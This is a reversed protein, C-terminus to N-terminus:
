RRAPTHHALLRPGTGKLDDFFTHGSMIRYITAALAYVDTKPHVIGDAQEPAIYGLTGSITDSQEKNLTLRSVGFDIVVAGLVSTRKPDRHHEPSFLTNQPFNLRLFLNGPKLDCHVLGFSQLASLGSCVDQIIPKVESLSLPRARAYTELDCGILYELVLYPQDRDWGSDVFNAVNPHYIQKLIDAEMQLAAKISSLESASTASKPVFLKLVFRRGNREHEVLWVEGQTGRGLRRILKYPGVQRVPPSSSSRHVSLMSKISTGVLPGLMPGLDEAWAREIESLREDDIRPSELLEVAEACLERYREDPWPKLHPSTLARRPDSTLPALASAAEGLALVAISMPAHTGLARAREAQHLAYGLALVGKAIATNDAGLGELLSAVPGTWGGEEAELKQLETQIAQTSDLIAESTGLRAAAESRPLFKLLTTEKACLAWWAAFRAYLAERDTVASGVM